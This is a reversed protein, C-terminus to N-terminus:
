VYLVESHAIYEPYKQTLYALRKQQDGDLTPLPRIAERMNVVDEFEPESVVVGEAAAWWVMSFNTDFQEVQERPTAPCSGYAIFDVDLGRYTLKICFLLRGTNDRYTEYVKGMTVGPLKSLVRCTGEAAREYNEEENYGDADLDFIDFDKAPKGHYWDRCAGGALVVKYGDDKLSQLLESIVEQQEKITSM